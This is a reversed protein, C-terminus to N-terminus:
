GEMRAAVAYRSVSARRGPTDGAPMAAFAAEGRRYDDDNAFLQLVLARGGDTDHLVIVEVPPMGEPRDGEEMRQQLDRMRGADVDEFTVVRAIAM